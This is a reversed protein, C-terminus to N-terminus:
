LLRKNKPKDDQLRNSQHPNQKITSVDPRRTPRQHALLMWFYWKIEIRLNLIYNVTHLTTPRTQFM